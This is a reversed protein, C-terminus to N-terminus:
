AEFNSFKQWPTDLIHYQTSKVIYYGLLQTKKLGKWIHILFHIRLVTAIDALRVCPSGIRGGAMVVKILSSFVPLASPANGKLLWCELLKGLNSPMRCLHPRIPYMAMIILDCYGM